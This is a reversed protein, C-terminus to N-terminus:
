AELMWVVAKRAVVFSLHGLALCTVGCECECEWMLQNHKNRAVVRLVRLRGFQEDTLDIFRGM